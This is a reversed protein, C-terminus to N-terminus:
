ACILNNEKPEHQNKGTETLTMVLQAFVEPLFSSFALHAKGAWAAYVYRQLLCFHM